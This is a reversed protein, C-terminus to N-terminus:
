DGSAKSDDNDNTSDKGDTNGGVEQSTNPVLMKGTEPYYLVNGLSWKMIDDKIPKENLKYRAENISIVGGDLAVKIAEYKEKETTRLIESTDFRFFYGDRKEDELLFTKNLASEIATIIPSLCYQLFNINNQEVTSYKQASPNIMAEPMNFLKCIESINNKKNDTLQLDNPNLSVPKYQLGEELIVTKGANKMGSYLTNWSQRLRQVTPESLRGATELIGLPLAGNNFISQSYETESNVINFVSEGYHLIGKSTLGDQSDKLVILLEHPKFVVSDGESSYDLKANTIKHGKYYKTVTIGESELPYLEIIENGKKGIASYSTGHLLYDKVMKKKVTYANQFENPNDNLIFERDDMVREVESCDGDGCNHEKYLYIPLQAITGSIMEVCRQVTPIKMVEAENVPKAQPMLSQFANNSSRQEVEDEKSLFDLFGIDFM